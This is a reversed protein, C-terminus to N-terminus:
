RLQTRGRVLESRVAGSFVVAPPLEAEGQLIHAFVHLMIKQDIVHMVDHSAKALADCAYRNASNCWWSHFLWAQTYHNMCHLGHLTVHLSM